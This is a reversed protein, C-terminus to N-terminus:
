GTFIVTWFHHITIHMNHVLSSFTKDWKGKKLKRCRGGGEGQVVGVNEVCRLHVGARCEEWM